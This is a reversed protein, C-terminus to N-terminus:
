VTLVGKEKFLVFANFFYNIGVRIDELSGGNFSLIDNEIEIGIHITM